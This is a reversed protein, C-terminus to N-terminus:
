WNQAGAVLQESAGIVPSVAVVHPASAIADADAQTLSQRTGAGGRVGGAGTPAGPIITLVNTGLSAVRANLVASTGQTLTVVAIVAAVGVIVGLITLLSRLRNALLAEWASAFSSGLLLGRRSSRGHGRATRSAKGPAGGARPARAASPTSLPSTPM